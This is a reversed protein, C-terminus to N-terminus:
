WISWDVRNTESRSTPVQLGHTLEPVRRNVYNKLAGVTVSPHSQFYELIAYTFVGNKLDGRELAFQTGAAASIITAGTSRGVNVFLQQMLEFSSRTGMRGNSDKELIEVGKHLSDAAAVRRYAQMEEKDIAGSHCADILMLKRRAPISDLLGELVEYPLGGDEPKQFDVGYTSLFYDFEKSLLGHGSYALLVKDNVTTQRLRDKLAAVAATTVQENFLTDVVIASGYHAKLALALDRVDKVSYRLNNTSDRFRDIGIGIFYLREVVPTAPIYEVQLPIHYSETGNVNTVSTEISNQGASLQVQVITDLQHINRARLPVGALGFLPVENIWINFRDLAFATDQGTVHLRLAPTAQENAVQARDPFGAEPLGFKKRNFFASDIGLKKLRKGYAKQYAAILSENNSGLTRLVIDPRNYRADLQEFTIVQLDPSVYHLLRAAGPSSTYYGAATIAIYDSSDVAVLRCFPQGSSNRILALEYDTTEVLTGLAANFSFDYADPNLAVSSLLAGTAANWRCMKHGQVTTVTTGDPSFAGALVLGGQGKFLVLPAGTEANWSRATGDASFTLLKTGDPSFCAGEVEGSQTCTFRTAGTAADWAVATNGSLTIVRQGDPSFLIPASSRAGKDTKRLMRGDDASWLRIGDGSATAITTADPSFGVELVDAEHPLTARLAGTQADWVRASHDRSTTVLLEGGPSFAAAYLEKRHGVLTAILRGSAVEWIRATGDVSITALKRSDPSFVPRLVLQKHGKLSATLIGTRLNWLRVLSDNVVAIAAGDPAYVAFNVFGSHSKLTAVWQASAAKYIRIEGDQYSVAMKQQDPSYVAHSIASRDGSPREPVAALTKGSAADLVAARQWVVSGAVTIIRRSDASFGAQHLEQVPYTWSASNGSLDWVQLGRQLLRALVRSGDPAFAAELVTEPASLTQTIKGSALDWVQITRGDAALTLLLRDDASPVASAFSGPMARRLTGTRLDWVTLKGVEAAFPKLFAVISQGDPSICATAAVLGPTKITHLCKGTASSWVKITEDAAATVVQHGDASFRWASVQYQHGRLQGVPQGSRGDWLTLQDDKNLLIREEGHAWLARGAQRIDYLLMGTIVDWLKVSKGDTSLLRKGDQSFQLVAGQNHGVPLVLKPEEQARAETRCLLLLVCFSAAIKRLFLVCM